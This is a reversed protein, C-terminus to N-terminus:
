IDKGDQQQKKDLEKFFDKNEKLLKYLERANGEVDKRFKDGVKERVSKYETYTLVIGGFISALPLAKYDFYYWFPNLIDIFLLFAMFALYQVTKKTTQRLGYSHIFVGQEKSKKIGFHLDIGIDLIVICWCIFVIAMQMKLAAWNLEVIEILMINSM